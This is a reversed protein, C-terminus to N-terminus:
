QRHLCTFGGPCAEDRNHCVHDVQYGEPIPGVFAEYAIRHALKTTKLAPVYVQCYGRKQITGRVFWCGNPQVTLRDLILQQLETRSRGSDLPHDAGVEQVPAPSFPGNNDARQTTM